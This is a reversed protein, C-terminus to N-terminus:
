GKAEVILNNKGRLFVIEACKNVRYLTDLTVALKVSIGNAGKLTEHNEQYMKPDNIFLSHMCKTKRLLADWRSVM